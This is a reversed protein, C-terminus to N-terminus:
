ENYNKIDIWKQQIKLPIINENLDIVNIIFDYFKNFIDEPGLLFLSRLIITIKNYEDISVNLGVFYNTYREYSILSLDDFDIGYYFLTYKYIQIRRLTFEKNKKLEINNQIKYYNDTYNIDSPFAISMYNYNNFKNWQKNILLDLIESEVEHSHYIIEDYINNVTNELLKTPKMGFLVKDEIGLIYIRSYIGINESVLEIIKEEIRNKFKKDDFYVILIEANEDSIVKPVRENLNNTGTTIVNVNYPKFNNLDGFLTVYKSMIIENRLIPEKLNSFSVLLNTGLIIPNDNLNDSINIITVHYKKALKKAFEIVNENVEMILTNNVKSKLNSYSKPDVIESLPTQFKIQIDGPLSVGYNSIRIIESLEQM